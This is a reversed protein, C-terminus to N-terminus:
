LIITLPYAVDGVGLGVCVGLEDWLGVVDRVVVFLGDPVGVADILVVGM